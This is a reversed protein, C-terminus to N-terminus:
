KNMLHEFKKYKESDDKRKGNQWMKVKEQIKKLKKQNADLDLGLKRKEEPNQEAELMSKLQEVSKNLEKTEEFTTLVEDSLEKVSEQSITPNPFSGKDALTDIVLLIIDLNDKNISPVSPNNAVLVFMKKLEKIFDEVASTREGALSVFNDIEDALEFAGHQDLKNAFKVLHILLKEM